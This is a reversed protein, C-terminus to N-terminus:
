RQLFFEAALGLASHHAAPPRRLLHPGPGYIAPSCGANQDTAWGKLFWFGSRGASVAPPRQDGPRYRHALLFSRPSAPPSCVFPSHHIITAPHIQLQSTAIRLRLNYLALSAVVNLLSIIALQLRFAFANPRLALHLADAPLSCPKVGAM